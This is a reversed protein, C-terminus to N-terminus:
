AAKEDLRQKRAFEAPTINGLASHPRENNYDNRWKSIEIRADVLSAFLTDNLCEDRFRGNFSEVFANQTPKGPAIYHWEVGSGQCWEKADYWTVAAPLSKPECSLADLNDLDSHKQRHWVYDPNRELFRQFQKNTILNSFCLPREGSAGLSFGPRLPAKKLRPDYEGIKTLYTKLIAHEGPHSGPSGGDAYFMNEAEHLDYEFWRQYQYYQYLMFADADEIKSVNKDRLYPYCPNRPFAKYRLGQFVFEYTGDVAKLFALRNNYPIIEVWGAPYLELVQRLLQGVSQIKKQEDEVINYAQGIINESFEGMDCLQDGILNNFTMPVQSLSLQM